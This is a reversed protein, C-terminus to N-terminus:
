SLGTLRYEIEKMTKVLNKAADVVVKVNALTCKVHLEDNRYLVGNKNAIDQWITRIQDNYIDIDNQKIDILMYSDDSFIYHDAEILWYIGIYDNHRDLIDTVIKRVKTM